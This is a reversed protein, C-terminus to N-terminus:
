AQEGKQGAPQPALAREYVRYTKYIRGNLAQALRNMPGNTELVWGGDGHQWGLKHGTNYAEIFLAADIGITRYGDEIGMLMVRVRDIKSRVKWHWLLQLLSIWDPKGPRPYAHRLAQNMDPLGLLFARPVGEVEAFFAMRPDFFQGIEHVMQDLERPAFPIFGWNKEWAKNYIDKLLSFEQKLHKVDATRVRIKRRESNKQTV